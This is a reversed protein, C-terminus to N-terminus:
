NENSPEEIKEKFVTAVSIVEIGAEKLAKRIDGEKCNKAKVIVNVLESM